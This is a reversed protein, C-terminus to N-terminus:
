INMKQQGPLSFYFEAGKGIEGNAWVEGGHRSVIRQVIALGVGTGEFEAFSHLRQFVGFLKDKFEMDFGVGNDKISYTNIGDSMKCSIYIRIIDNKSSYKIANSLLNTWVLKIMNPDGESDCIDGVNLEINKSIGPDILENCTIDILEKMKIVSFTMESRSLRSFALLEDILMGMKKSSQQIINCIRLGESDLRPAYEEMLIQTFGNISRLPARLDHSVSYSFAELEKNALKLQATREEVRQELTENLSRLLTENEKQSTIDRAVVVSGMIDGNNDRIPSFSYSGIWKEKLDKRELIYEENSAIEGRLARPVAWMEVPAPDGNTMYVNLIDPYESFKKSCSEKDTFKHFTAFADNFLVFEGNKDSIFIADTMSALAADLYAKNEYLAEEADKRASIDEIIALNYMLKGSQNFNATVTLSAWIVKGDKRIYQKEVKYVQIEGRILKQISDIEKEDSNYSIDKFTMNKLEEETYGMIQCFTGNVNIFRFENSVMAMGFPGDEYIKRFKTESQSLAEEANKWDTIDLMTAITCPEGALDTNEVSTLLTLQRGTKSRAPIEINHLNGKQKLLALISPRSEDDILDLQNGTHGIVQDHTLGVLSLFSNNAAIYKGDKQSAITMASPSGQFAKNFLDESKRLAEEATRRKMEIEKRDTVEISLIFVGEPVPQISLDFWGVRGDPYIFENELRHAIRNELCDKILRYIETKEIGPWMKEYKKGLLEQNPIHNHYQATKNLYVYRWDLGIIQCGELLNDLDPRNLSNTTRQAM